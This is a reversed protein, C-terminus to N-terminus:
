NGSHVIRIQNTAPVHCKGKVAVKINARTYMAKMNARTFMVNVNAWTCLVMM